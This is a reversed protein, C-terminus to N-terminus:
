EERKQLEAVTPYYERLNKGQYNKWLVPGEHSERGNVIRGIYSSTPCEYNDAFIRTGDSSQIIIKDAILQEITDIDSKKATSTQPRLKSGELVRVRGEGIHRIYAENFNFVSDDSDFILELNPYSNDSAEIVTVAIDLSNKIDTPEKLVYRCSGRRSLPKLMTNIESVIGSDTRNMSTLIDAIQPLISLQLIESIAEEDSLNKVEDENVFLYSHGLMADPGIKKKLINQNIDALIEFVTEFLGGKDLLKRSEWFSQTKGSNTNGLIAKVDNMASKVLMTEVRYYAFRRRLAADMSTVSRDSTNMTALIYLNDPLRLYKTLDPENHVAVEWISDETPKNTLADNGDPCVRKTSEIITLLEGMVMPINARNIEDIFLIYKKGSRDNMAQNAVNSLTGPLYNFHLKGKENQPFIGGIFEEYTKAPHFTTTELTANMQEKVKNRLWTKGTGPVGELIVNKRLELLEVIESIESGASNVSNRIRKMEDKDEFHGTLSSAHGIEDKQMRGTYYNKFDKPMSKRTKLEEIDIWNKGSAQFVGLSCMPLIHSFNILDRSGGSKPTVNVYDAVKYKYLDLLVEFDALAFPIETEGGTDTKKVVISQNTISSDLIQFLAHGEYGLKFNRGTRVVTHQSRKLRDAVAVCLNWIEKAAKKTGPHIQNGPENLKDIAIKRLESIQPDDYLSQWQERTTYSM